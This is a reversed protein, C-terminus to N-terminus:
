ATKRQERVSTDQRGTCAPYDERAWNYDLEMEADTHLFRERDEEATVDVHWSVGDVTILNWCRKQGDRTGQVVQCPIDAKDCLLKYAMAVGETSASGKVLASYVSDSEHPGWTIRGRLGDCLVWARKLGSDGDEELIRGAAVNVQAAQNELTERDEKWDLTLEVVRPSGHDPYLRVDVQPRTMAAEPTDYYVEWFIRRVLEESEYGGRTKLTLHTSFSRLADGVQRRFGTRSSVTRIAAIEDMSRRYRYRFVCEYYSVIRTHDCTVDRLAYTGVPDNQLLAACADRTAQEIDGEYQYLRVTGRAAGLTVFYQAGSVLDAYSEARLATADERDATQATHETVLTYERELLGCGSLLLCCALLLLFRKKMGIVM